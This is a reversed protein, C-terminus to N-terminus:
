ANLNHTTQLMCVYMAVVTILKKNLHFNNMIFIKM